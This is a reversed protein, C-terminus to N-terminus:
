PWIAVGLDFHGGIVFGGFLSGIDVMAPGMDAAASVEISAKGLCKAIRIGGIRTTGGFIWRPLRAPGPFYTFFMHADPLLWSGRWGNGEFLRAAFTWEGLSADLAVGHEGALNGYGIGAAWFDNGAELMPEVLVGSSDLAPLLVSAVNTAAAIMFPHHRPPPASPEDLTTGEADYFPVDAPPPESGVVPAAISPAEYVLAFLTILAAWWAHTKV